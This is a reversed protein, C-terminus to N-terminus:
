STRVPIKRSVAEKVKPLHLHLVGNTLQARIGDRDIENPLTFTREFDGEGYENYALKYGEPVRSEVRGHIILKNKELNIDLSNETVGPMDATLEIGESTEYIDARPSFVPRTRTREVREIPQEEKNQLEQTTDVM